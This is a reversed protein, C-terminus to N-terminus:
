AQYFQSVKFNLIISFANATTLFIFEIKLDNNSSSKLLKLKNMILSILIKLQYVYM